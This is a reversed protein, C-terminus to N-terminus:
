KGQNPCTLAYAKLEKQGRFYLLFFLNNM